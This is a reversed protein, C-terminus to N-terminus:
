HNLIKYTREKKGLLKEMIVKRVIYRGLGMPMFFALYTASSGTYILLDIVGLRRDRCKEGNNAKYIVYNLYVISAAIGILPISLLSWNGYLSAYAILLLLFLLGAYLGGYLKVSDMFSDRVKAPLYTATLMMQALLFAMGLVAVYARLGGLPLLMIVAFPVASIYATYFPDRLSTKLHTFFARYAGYNWMIKQRAIAKPNSVFEAYMSIEDSFKIGRGLERLIVGMEIDDGGHEGSHRKIVEALGTSLWLLATGNIWIGEGTARRLHLTMVLHEVHQVRDLFNPERLYSRVDYDPKVRRVREGLEALGQGLSHREVLERLVYIQNLTPYTMVPFDEELQACHKSLLGDFEGGIPVPTVDDDQTFVCRSGYTKMAYELGVRIADIKGGNPKRLVVALGKEEILKLAEQTERRTSGDDVVIIPNESVARLYAVTVFITAPTTNYVPIIIPVLERM